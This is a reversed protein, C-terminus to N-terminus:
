ASGEWGGQLSRRSVPVRRQLRTGDKGEILHAVLEHGMKDAAPVGPLARLGEHIDPLPLPLGNPGVDVAEIDCHQLDLIQVLRYCHGSQLAAKLLIVEQEGLLLLVGPIKSIQQSPSFPVSSRFFGEFHLILLGRSLPLRSVRTLGCDFFPRSFSPRVRAGRRPVLM